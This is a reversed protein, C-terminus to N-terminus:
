LLVDKLGEARLPREDTPVGLGVGLDINPIGDPREVPEEVASHRRRAVVSGIEIIIASDTLNIGIRSEFEEEVTPRRRRTGECARWRKGAAPSVGRPVAQRAALREHAATLKRRVAAARNTLSHVRIM